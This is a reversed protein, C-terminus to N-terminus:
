CVSCNAIEKFQHPSSRNSQSKLIVTMLPDKTMKQNGIYNTPNSKIDAFYQGPFLSQWPGSFDISYVQTYSVMELKNEERNALM